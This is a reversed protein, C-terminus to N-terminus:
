GALLRGGRALRGCCIDQAQFPQAHQSAIAGHYPIHRDVDCGTFDGRQEARVSCALRAQHQCHGAHQPQPGSGHEQVTAVEGPGPRLADPARPHRHNGLASSEQGLQRHVVVDASRGIREGALTRAGAPLTRKLEKGGEPLGELDGSTRKRAPLLLHDHQSLRQHGLRPEHKDVLQREAESWDNKAVQNRHYPGDGLRADADEEDLLEGGDREPEGTAGVHHFPALQPVRAKRALQRLM